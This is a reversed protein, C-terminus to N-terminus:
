RQIVLYGLTSSGHLAIMKTVYMYRLRSFDTYKRLDPIIYEARNVWRQAESIAWIWWCPRCQVLALILGPYFM